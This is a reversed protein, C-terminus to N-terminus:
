NSLFIYIFILEIINYIAFFDFGSFFLIVLIAPMQPINIGMTTKNHMPSAIDCEGHNLNVFCAKLSRPTSPTEAINKLEPIISPPIRARTNESPKIFINFFLVPPYISLKLESARIPIPINGSVTYVNCKITEAAKKTNSTIDNRIMPSVIFRFWDSRVMPISAVRKAIIAM